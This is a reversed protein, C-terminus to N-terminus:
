SGKKKRRSERKRQRRIRMETMERSSDGWTKGEEQDRRKGWVTEREESKGDNRRETETGERQAQIGAERRRHVTELRQGGWSGRCTNINQRWRGKERM